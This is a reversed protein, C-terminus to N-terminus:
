IAGGRGNSEVVPPMGAQQNTDLEDLSPPVRRVKSETRAGDMLDAGPHNRAGAPGRPKAGSTEAIYVYIHQAALFRPPTAICGKLSALALGM